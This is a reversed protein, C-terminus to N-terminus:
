PQAPAGAFQELAAAAANAVQQEFGEQAIVGADELPSLTGVEVAAAPAHISRLQRVPAGTVPRVTVGAMQLFRQELAQALQQSPVQKTEQASDWPVFLLTGAGPAPSPPQYAYVAIVPSRDGLDGAHFSVFAVPNATNATVSRQEFTPDSDGSRTLVIRYKGTAKLALALNQVLAAAVNKELIGDRSRAGSDAGGHGADLVFAPLPAPAITPAPAPASSSPAGPGPGTTSAAAAARQQAPLGQSGAPQPKVLDAIVVQQNQTLQSYFNLGLETPTLILKPRGDQDDFRVEKVYPNNFQIVREMPAVPPGNLFIIWKGNTSATRISVKGTFQIVLKAGSPQGQLKVTFSVPHIGGIFARYDGAQYLVRKGTLRPVVLTLFSVPVLWQGNVRLVPQLLDVTNKGFRIKSQRLSLQLRSDGVWVELSKRKEQLGTVQANLNLLPLLPLYVTGNVTEASM